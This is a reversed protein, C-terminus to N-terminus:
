QQKLHSSSNPDNQYFSKEPELLGWRDWDGNTWISYKAVGLVESVPIPGFFRSDYSNTRNDGMVYVHGPPVEREKFVVDDLENSSFIPYNTDRNHEIYIIGNCNPDKQTTNRLDIFQHNVEKVATRNLTIGNIIVRNSNVEVTDGECAVVRKFFPTKSIDYKYFLIIDGVKVDIDEGHNMYVAVRDKAEFAPYMSDSLVKMPQIYKVILQRTFDHYFGALLFTFFLYCYWRNYEKLRYKVSTKTAIISADIALIIKPLFLLTIYTILAISNVLCFDNLVFVGFSKFIYLGIVLGIGRALRGCYIHGLGPWLLSFLAALWVRRKKRKPVKM